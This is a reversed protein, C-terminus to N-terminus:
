LPPLAGGEKAEDRAKARQIWAAAEDKRGTRTLLIALNTMAQANAPEKAVVARLLTEAEPAAKNHEFLILALDHMAKTHDPRAALCARLSAVAEDYRGLDRLVTGRYFHADAFQPDLSLATDYEALAEAACHRTQLGVGVDTHLEADLRIADTPAALPLNVFVLFGALLAAREWALRNLRRGVTWLHEAGLVAFIMLSPIIPLRYRSAPFFLIVSLAYCIIFAAM